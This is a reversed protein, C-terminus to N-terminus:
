RFNFEDKMSSNDRAIRCEPLKFAVNMKRQKQQGFLM